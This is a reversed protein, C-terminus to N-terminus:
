KTIPVTITVIVNGKGAKPKKTVGYQNPIIDMTGKLVGNGKTDEVFQFPIEITKTSDKLTLNGIAVFDKGNAKIATSTFSITPFKEANFFDASLLHEDKGADDTKLTKVDVTATIKSKELNNVDFDITAKLGSLTGKTGQEPLEFAISVGENAVNWIYNLTFSSTVIVLLIAIPAILKKM